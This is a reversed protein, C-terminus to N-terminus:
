IKGNIYDVYIEHFRAADYSESRSGCYDGQKRKEEYRDIANMKEVDYQSFWDCVDQCGFGGYMKGYFGRMARDFVIRLDATTISTNLDEIIHDLIPPVMTDIIDENLPRAPNTAMNLQILYLKLANEVRIRGLDDICKNLSPLYARGAWVAVTDEPTKYDSTMTAIAKPTLM